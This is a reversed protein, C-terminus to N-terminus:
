NLFAVSEFSTCLVYHYLSVALMVQVVSPQTSIYHVLVTAIYQM